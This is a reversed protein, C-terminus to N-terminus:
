FKLGGERAAEALAKVRGHFKYFGRDFRVREIGKEKARAALVKGVETAVDTKKKGGLGDRLSKDRSSAAVITIGGQDDIIQGYINKASRFVTLRPLDINDRLRRRVHLRKRHRRTSLRKLQERTKM